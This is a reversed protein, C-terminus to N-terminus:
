SEGKGDQSKPRAFVQLAQRLTLSTQKWTELPALAALPVALTRAEEAEVPYLGESDLTPDLLHLFALPGPPQYYVDLVEVRGESPENWLLFPPRGVNRFIARCLELWFILAPGWAEVGEPLRFRLGYVPVATRHAVELLNTAVRIAPNVAGSGSLSAAFAGLSVSDLVVEAAIAPPDLPSPQALSSVAASLSPMDTWASLTVASARRLFPDLLAALPAPYGAGSSRAHAYVAFPFLRGSQDRSPGMVGTLGHEPSNRWFHFRVRPMARLMADARDGYRAHTLNVGEQLWRELAVGETLGSHQSLFDAALPLKGFCGVTLTYPTM